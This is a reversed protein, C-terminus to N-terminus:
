HSQSRYQEFCMSTNGPQLMHVNNRRESRIEDVKTLKTNKGQEKLRKEREKETESEILAKNAYFRDEDTTIDWFLQSRHKFCENIFMCLHTVWLLLFCVFTVVIAPDDFVSDLGDMIMLKAGKSPYKPIPYLLGGDMRWQAALSLVSASEPFYIFAEYSVKHRSGNIFGGENLTTVLNTLNQRPVNAGM